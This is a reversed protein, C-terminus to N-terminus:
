DEVVVLTGLEAWDYLERAKDPPLNVCGHSFKRGFNVHWYAGHIAAGEETFYLDWPVGPLDYYQDSVGDIPGQMYRSPTKRFIAFTGTPTPTLELGTSVKISMFLEDSDYASLTQAGRDIVIKKTTPGVVDNDDGSVRIGEDLLVHVYDAAVYWDGEVREPFRLWEDFVVKYWTRGDREVKGSVKLVMSKRLQAVKPYDTGPGSRVNVCEGEFYPGCGDTIEVFEFFVKQIPLVLVQEDNTKSKIVVSEENHSFTKKPEEVPTSTADGGQKSVSFVRETNLVGAKFLTTILLTSVVVLIVFLVYVVRRHHMGTVYM